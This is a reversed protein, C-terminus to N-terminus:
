VTNFNFGNLAFSNVEVLSGDNSQLRSYLQQFGQPICYPSAAVANIGNTADAETLHYTVTHLAPDLNALVVADNVLLNYCVNDNGDSCATLSNPQGGQNNNCDSVLLYLQTISNCNPSVPDFVNVYLIQQNPIINTYPVSVNIQNTGTQADFLTEHISVVVQQGQMFIPITPNLDFTSTGNPSCATMSQPSVQPPLNVTLNYTIINVQNTSTNFVRAFILQPNTVNTYQSPLPNVNNVADAQTLHHSVVLNSQGQNIELGIEQMEFSAFGDNNTDCYTNFNTPQNITQSFLFSSAFFLILLLVTKKM